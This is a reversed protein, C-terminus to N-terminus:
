RRLVSGPHTALYLSHPRWARGHEPYLHGLGAAEAALVTVRHAHVHDPHGTLNGYADHTFVVHPRVDRTEALETARRMARGWTCTLM